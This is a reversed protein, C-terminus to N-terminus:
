HKHKLAFLNDTGRITKKHELNANGNKYMADIYARIENASEVDLVNMEKLVNMLDVGKPYM